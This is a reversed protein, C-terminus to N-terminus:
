QFAVSSLGPALSVGVMASILASEDSGLVSTQILRHPDQDAAHLAAPSFGLLYSISSRWRAIAPKKM